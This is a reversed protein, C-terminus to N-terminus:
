GQVAFHHEGTVAISCRPSICIVQCTYVDLVPYDYDSWAGRFLPFPIGAGSCADTLHGFGLFSASSLAAAPLLLVKQQQDPVPFRYRMLDAKWPNAM